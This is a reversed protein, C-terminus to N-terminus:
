RSPTSAANTAPLPQIEAEIRFCRYWLHSWNKATACLRQPTAVVGFIGSYAGCDGDAMSCSVYKNLTDFPLCAIGHGESIQIATPKLTTEAPAEICLAACKSWRGDGCAPSHIEARQSRPVQVSKALRNGDRTAQSTGCAGSTPDCTVRTINDVIPDVAMRGCKATLEASNAGYVFGLDTGTIKSKCRGQLTEASAPVPALFLFLLVWQLTATLTRM